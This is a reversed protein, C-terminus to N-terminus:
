KVREWKYGVGWVTSIYNTEPDSEGLKFRIKKIHEAVSASDGEADYGWVKEYIQDKSFIVGPHLALLEIIEFERRTFVIPQDCYFIEHGKLDIALDRFRLLTRNSLSTARKERRLHAAVRMKLEKLSFPKTIYDDGGIALGKIRDAESQRASLFLIPCAVVNRITQCVEFGDPGPMMVDLIILDPRHKAQNIAQEGNAASIVDYGDGTLADKIMSVIAEEDDVILVKEVM